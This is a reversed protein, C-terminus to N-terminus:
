VKQTILLGKMQDMAKAIRVVEVSPIQLIVKDNEQDVVKIIVEKYNPDIQFQVSISMSALVKNIEQLSQQAQEASLKAAESDRADAAVKAAPANFVKGQVSSGAAAQAIKQSHQLRDGAIIPGTSISM